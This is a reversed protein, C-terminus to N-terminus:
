IEFSVGERNTIKHFKQILENEDESDLYIDSICEIYESLQPWVNEIIVELCIKNLKKVYRFREMKTQFYLKCLGLKSKGVTIQIDPIVKQILSKLKIAVKKANMQALKVSNIYIDIDHSFM